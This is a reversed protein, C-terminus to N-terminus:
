ESSFSLDFHHRPSLSYNGKTLSGGFINVHVPAGSALKRFFDRLAKSLCSKLNSCSSMLGKTLMEYTLPNHTCYYSSANEHEHESSHPHWSYQVAPIMESSNVHGQIYRLQDSM